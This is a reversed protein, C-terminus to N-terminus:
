PKGKLEVTLMPYMVEMAGPLRNNLINTLIRSTGPYRACYEALPEVEEGLAALLERALDKIFEERFSYMDQLYEAQQKPTM